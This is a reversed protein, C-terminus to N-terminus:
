VGSHDNLGRLLTTELLKLVHKPSKELGILDDPELDLYNAILHTLEIKTIPTEGLKTTYPQRRYVGEKSLKGIISKVPKNLEVALRDVTDRNPEVTYEKCMHETIEKTYNM